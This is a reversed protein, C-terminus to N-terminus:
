SIRCGHWGRGESDRSKSQRNPRKSSVPHVRSRSRCRRDVRRVRPPRPPKSHIASPVHWLCQHRRKLFQLRGVGQRVCVRRKVGFQVPQQVVIAPPRRREVEGAAHGFMQAACSDVQLALVQQVGARVLDVVRQALPQQRPPHAFLPDDRLGARALMPNGGCGHARQKAHLAHDVHALFVHAPLLQVDEAHAQQARLHAADARARGGQLVGDVLRHAVPHGIHARGVVDQAACQARM